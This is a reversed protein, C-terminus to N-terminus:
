GEIEPLTFCFTTGDGDHPEVWIRGGHRTIIRKCVALGIGSGPYAHSPHLRRFLEFIDQSTDAIGIGNDQVRITWFGGAKASSIVIHPKRHPVQFKIANGLLNQFIQMMQVFDGMVEPLESCEIEAGSESISEHLNKMASFCADGLSLREYGVDKSSVRSVALLDHILLNMRKAADIVFVFNEREETPLREAMNKQILQTFSVITRLPERLDHSAVFAFRELEANSETLRDILDRLDQEQRHHSAELDLRDLGFSIEDAMQTLLDILDPSFAALQGAYLNLGGIAKGQNFIPFSASSRFGAERAKDHWPRTGPFELFDDVVMPEGSLISRATPGESTPAGPELSIQLNELYNGSEGAFAIPHVSKGKADILGIWALQFHGFEVAIRTVADFIAQRDRTHLITHNTQSLAAYVNKLGVIAEEYAKHDRIDRVFGVDIEKGDCLHYNATIEVPILVGNKQLLQTQFRLAKKEKLERWHADWADGVHNPNLDSVRMEQLEVRTYGLLQCAADNVYFFEGDRDLWFVADAARDIAFQTLRLGGEIRAKERVHHHGARWVATIGIMVFSWFLLHEVALRRISEEAMMRHPGLHAVVDVGGRLDGVAYGQHGHCSLCGEETMIPLMVRVKDPAVLETVEVEGAALRMLAAKEWADPANAPNLPKLSTIRGNAVYGQEMLQRMMYAPNVLTLRQGDKTEVDRHPVQLFSNPPTRDTPPVYVGGHSAAWQRFGISIKASVRAENIAMDIAQRHEAQQGIWFSLAVAFTWLVASGMVLRRFASM